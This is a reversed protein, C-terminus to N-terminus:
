DGRRWGPNSMRWLSQEAKRKMWAPARALAAEAAALLDVPEAAPKPSGKKQQHTRSAVAKVKQPKQAPPTPQRM